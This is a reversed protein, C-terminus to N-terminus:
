TQLTGALNPNSQLFSAAFDDADCDVVCLGNSSEGLSVGINGKLGALYKPTMEALRIKQWGKQTPVKGACDILVADGLLERIEAISVKRAPPGSMGSDGGSSGMRM